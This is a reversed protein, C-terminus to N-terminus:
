IDLHITLTLLCHPIVTDEEDKMFVVCAHGQGRIESTKCVFKDLMRRRATM